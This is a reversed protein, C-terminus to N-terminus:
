ATLRSIFEKLNSITTTDAYDAFKAYLGVRLVTSFEVIRVEIYYQDPAVVWIEEPTDANKDGVILYPKNFSREIEKQIERIIKESFLTEVTKNHDEVKKRFDPDTNKLIEDKTLHTFSKHLEAFLLGKETFLSNLNAKKTEFNFVVGGPLTLRQDRKLESIFDRDIKTGRTNFSVVPINLTNTLEKIIKNVIDENSARKGKKSPNISNRHHLLTNLIEKVGEDTLEKLTPFDEGNLRARLKSVDGSIQTLIKKKDTIGRGRLNSLYYHWFNNKLDDSSVIASSMIDSM